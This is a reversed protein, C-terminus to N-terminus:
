RIFTFQYNALFNWIVVIITAVVKSIYFNMGKKDHLLWIILNNIILGIVSIIIFKLYQIIIEPDTSKFTWIRNLFYNSTAALTFGLSNAVYKHIKLKEKALYTIGFDVFIGSLGVLGFKIFKFLISGM